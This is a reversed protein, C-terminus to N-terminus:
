PHIPFVAALKQVRVVGNKEAKRKKGYYYMSSLVFGVGIGQIIFVTLWYPSPQLLKVLVLQWVLCWWLIAQLTPLVSIDAVKKAWKVWPSGVLEPLHRRNSTL